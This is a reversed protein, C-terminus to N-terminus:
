FSAYETLKYVNQSHQVLTVNHIYNDLLKRNNNCEHMYEEFVNRKKEYFMAQIPSTVCSHSMVFRNRINGYM